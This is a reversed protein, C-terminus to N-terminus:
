AAGRARIRDVVDAVLVGRDLDRFDNSTAGLLTLARTRRDLAVTDREVAVLGGVTADAGRMSWGVCGGVACGALFAVCAWAGASM